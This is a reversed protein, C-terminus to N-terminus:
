KSVVSPEYSSTKNFTSSLVFMSPQLVFQESHVVTRVIYAECFITDQFTVGNNCPPVQSIHEQFADYPPPPKISLNMIILEPM